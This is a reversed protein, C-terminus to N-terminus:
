MSISDFSVIITSLLEADVKQIVFTNILYGVILKSFPVSKIKIDIKIM